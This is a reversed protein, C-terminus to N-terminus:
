SAKFAPFKQDVQWEGGIAARRGGIFAGDDDSLHDFRTAELCPEGHDLWIRRPGAILAYEVLLETVLYCVQRVGPQPLNIGKALGGRQINIFDVKVLRIPCITAVSIM